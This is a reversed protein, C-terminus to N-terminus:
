CWLESRPTYVQESILVMGVVWNTVTDDIGDYLLFVFRVLKIQILSPHM